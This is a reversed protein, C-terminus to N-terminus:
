KTKTKGKDLQLKRYYNYDKKNAPTRKIEEEIKIESPQAFLELSQCAEEIKVKVEEESLQFNDLLSVYAVPTPLGKGDSPVVVCTKVFGTSLIAKEVNGAYVKVFNGNGDGTIFYERIRGGLKILRNFLGHVSGYTDSKFWKTGNSDTIFSNKTAEENNYYGDAISPSTICLVGEKGSPLKKGTEPDIAKAEIGNMLLFYDSLGFKLATASGLEGFGFGDILLPDALLTNLFRITEIKEEKSFTEGGSVITSLFSADKLKLEGSKKASELLKYFNPIAQIKEPYNKFLDDFDMKNDKTHKPMILTKGMLLVMITSNIAAYPYEHSVVGVAKESDCTPMNTTSIVIDPMNVYVRNPISIPKPEGSSGSTYLISAIDTVEVPEFYLHNYDVKYQQVEQWTVVRVSPNLEKFHHIKEEPVEEMLIVDQINTEELSIALEDINHADTFITKSDFDELNHNLKDKKSGNFIRANVLGLSNMAFFAEIGEISSSACISIKEGKKSKIINHLYQSLIITESILEGYTIKRDEIIAIRDELEPHKKVLDILYLFPSVPTKKNLLKGRHNKRVFRYHTPLNKILMFNTILDSVKKNNVGLIERNEM